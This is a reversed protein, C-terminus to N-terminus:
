FAGPRPRFTASVKDWVALAEAETLTAKTLIENLRLADKQQMSLEGVPIRDGNLLKFEVFPQKPDARLENGYLYFKTGRVGDQYPYNGFLWEEYPLGHLTRTEKRITKVEQREIFREVEASRQFLSTKSRVADTSGFGFWVDPADALHYVADTEQGEREAGAVFGNPICLGPVSPVETDKRGSVREYVKLLHALKEPTDNGLQKAISDNASEPFTNDTANIVAKIEFGDRWGLLDLTRSLRSTSESEARDFIVGVSPVPLEFKERLFPLSSRDGFFKTRALSNERAELTKEFLWKDMPRVAIKVGEIETTSESNLVFREPMDVLFRGVCRTSMNATLSEVRQTEEPTMPPAKPQCAYLLAVLGLTVLRVVTLPQLRQRERLM